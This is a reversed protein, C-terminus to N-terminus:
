THPFYVQVPWFQAEPDILYRALENFKEVQIRICEVPICATRAHWIEWCLHRISHPIVLASITIFLKVLLCSFSTDHPKTLLPHLTQHELYLQVTLHNITELNPDSHFYVKKNEARTQVGFCQLQTGIWPSCWTNVVFDHCDTSWNDKSAKCLFM